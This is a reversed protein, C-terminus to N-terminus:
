KCVDEISNFVIEPHLENIKQAALESIETEKIYNLIDSKKGPFKFNKLIDYIELDCIIKVNSCIEDISNFTTDKLKNLAIISAESLNKKQQALLLVEKKSIPFNTEKLLNIIEFNCLISM